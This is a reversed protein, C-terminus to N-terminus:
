RKSKKWAKKIDVPIGAFMVYFQDSARAFMQNAKGLVDRFKRGLKNNPHVGAGVENSVVIFESNSKKIAEITKKIHNLIKDESLNVLHSVYITLCDILVMKNRQRGIEKDLNKTIEITQWNNPRSSKHEKIREKMESDIPLATAIFTTRKGSKKALELALRSKGARVGGLIFTLKGM